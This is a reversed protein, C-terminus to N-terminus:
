LRAREPLPARWAARSLRGWLGQSPPGWVRSRPLSPGVRGQTHLLTGCARGHSPEWPGPSIGCLSQSPPGWMDRPTLSPGVCEETHTNGHGRPSEGLRQTLTQMVEM